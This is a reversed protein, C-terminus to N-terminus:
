IEVTVYNYINKIKSSVQLSTGIQTQDHHLMSKDLISQALEEVEHRSKHVLHVDSEIVEIGTADFDRLLFDLENLCQAAKVLDKVGAQM